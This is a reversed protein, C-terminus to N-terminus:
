SQATMHDLTILLATKGSNSMMLTRATAVASGKKIPKSYVIDHKMHDVVTCVYMVLLMVNLPFIDLRSASSANNLMLDTLSEVDQTELLFGDRNFSITESTPLCKSELQSLIVVMM